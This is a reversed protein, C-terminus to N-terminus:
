INPLYCRYYLSDMNYRRKTRNKTQIAENAYLRNLIALAIANIYEPNKTEPTNCHFSGFDFGPAENGMVEFQMTLSRNIVILCGNLAAEPGVLGFSEERTPFIFLNSLQVMERLVRKSLGGEYDPHIMSSFVFDKNYELGYRKGLEIYPGLEEKQQRGTANQNAIFLFVKVRAAKMRGFLKIVIDLQKAGLRDTSCPYVQVVDAKMIDEYVDTFAWVEESMDNLSRIDVIHPIIKIQSPNTSYAEAVRMIETKNPFVVYHNLGYSRLNWWDKKGTPCSHVWHYWKLDKIKNNTHKIALSYPLNWGTFVFDHTFVVDVGEELFSEEYMKGAEEAEKKHRDTLAASTQYDTLNMFKTKQLLKFGEYNMLHEVGADENNAPNFQENVYIIVIHGKRLLMKAQSVVIGSLSYGPNFDMFNTLIAITSKQKIKPTEQPVEELIPVLGENVETM